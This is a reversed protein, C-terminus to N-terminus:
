LYQRVEQFNKIAFYKVTDSQAPWQLQPFIIWMWHTRKQSGGIERLVVPFAQERAVIFREPNHTSKM